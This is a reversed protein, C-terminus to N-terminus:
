EMVEDFDLQDLVVVPGLRGFGDLGHLAKGRHVFGIPDRSKVAGAEVHGRHRSKGLETIRLNRDGADGFESRLQDM